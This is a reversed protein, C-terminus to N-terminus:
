ASEGGLVKLLCAFEDSVSYGTGPLVLDAITPQEDSIRSRQSSEADGAGGVRGIGDIIGKSIM